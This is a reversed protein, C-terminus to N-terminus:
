CSHLKCFNESVISDYHYKNHLLEIHDVTFPFHPQPMTEYDAAAQIELQTGWSTGDKYMSGVHEHFPNREIYFPQYKELNNIMQTVIAKRMQTCYMQDGFVQHSLGRFLCNGDPAVRHIKRSYQQVIDNLQMYAPIM